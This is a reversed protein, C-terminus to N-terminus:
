RDRAHPQDTTQKWAGFWSPRTSRFPVTTAWPRELRPPLPRIGATFPTPSGHAPSGCARISTAAPPIQRRTRCASVTSAGGASGVRLDDLLGASRPQHPTIAQVRQTFGTAPGDHTSSDCIRLGLHVRVFEHRTRGSRPSIDLSLVSLQSRLAEVHRQDERAYSYFVIPVSPTAPSSPM